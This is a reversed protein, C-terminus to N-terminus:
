VDMTRRNYVRISHNIAENSDIPNNIKVVEIHKKNKKKPNAITRSIGDALFVYSENEEVIVYLKNVDHGSLSRALYGIM